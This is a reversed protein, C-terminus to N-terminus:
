PRLWETQYYTVSGEEDVIAFLMKKRTSHAVRNKSVFEQLSFKEKESIVYMLWKSHNKGIVSSKEYVRFDAGYKLATKLIYGKGRLDSYAASKTTFRNDKRAAKSSFDEANIEKGRGDIIIIKESQLLYLAEVLSLEVNRSKNRSGFNKECLLNASDSKELMVVDGSLKGQAKDGRAMRILM